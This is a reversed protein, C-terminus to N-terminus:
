KKGQGLPASPDDSGKRAATEEKSEYVPLPSWGYIEDNLFLKWTRGTASDILLTNEPKSSTDPIYFLQYRGETATQLDRVQLTKDQAFSPSIFSLVVIVALLSKLLM